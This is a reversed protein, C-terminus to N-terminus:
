DFARKVKKEIHQGTRGDAIDDALDSAAHLTDEAADGIKNKMKDIPSQETFHDRHFRKVNKTVDRAIRGDKVDDILEEASDVIDEFVNKLSEVMKSEPPPSKYKKDMQKEIAQGTEKAVDAIKEGVLSLSAIAAGVVAGGTSFAIKEQTSLEQFAAKVENFGTRDGDADHLTDTVAELATKTVKNMDSISQKFDASPQVPRNPNISM